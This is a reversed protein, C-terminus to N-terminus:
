GKPDAGCLNALLSSLLDAAGPYAEIMASRAEPDKPYVVCPAL